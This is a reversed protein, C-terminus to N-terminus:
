RWRGPFLDQQFWPCAPQLVRHRDPPRLYPPLLPPLPPPPSSRCLSPFPCVPQSPSTSCTAARVLEARPPPPLEEHQPPLAGSAAHHQSRDALRTRHAVRSLRELERNRLLM